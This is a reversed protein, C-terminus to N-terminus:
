AALGPLLSFSLTAGTLGGGGVGPLGGAGALLRLALDLVLM